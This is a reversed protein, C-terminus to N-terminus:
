LLELDKNTIKSNHKQIEDYLKDCRSDLTRQLDDLRRDLSEDQSSIGRRLNDLEIEFNSNEVKDDLRNFAVMMAGVMAVVGLTSLVSLLIIGEM